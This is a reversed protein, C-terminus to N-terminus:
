AEADVEQLMDGAVQRLARTFDERGAQAGYALLSGLWRALEVDLIRSDSSERKMMETLEPFRGELWRLFTMLMHDGRELDDALSIDPGSADAWVVRWIGGTRKLVLCTELEPRDALLKAHTSWSPLPARCILM